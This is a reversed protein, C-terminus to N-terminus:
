RACSRVLHNRREISRNIQDRRLDRATFLRGNEHFTLMYQGIRLADAKDNKVRKIGMSQQIDNPTCVM